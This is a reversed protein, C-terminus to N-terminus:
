SKPLDSKLMAAFDSLSEDLPRFSAGLKEIAKRNDYRSKSVGARATERTLLPQVGLAYSKLLEWRWVLGVLWNPPLISPRKVQLADAMKFLLEKFSINHGSAIFRESHIDSNHLNLVLASVDRVDVVANEGSSYFPFGQYVKLMLAASSEGWNGPGLIVCPNIIAANLGEEIGRWVEKEAIYKSIAYNSNHKSDEWVMEEDIVEDSGKRGLAAVSSIHIFKKVGKDLALNVLNATGTGNVEFLTYKDRPNFSVMAAAHIVHDIGVFADELAPIDLIDGQVWEVNNLLSQPDPHYHKLTKYVTEIRNKSRYLARVHKGSQVLDFLIHSGLLGTAGTLLIM